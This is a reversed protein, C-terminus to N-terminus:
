GEEVAEAALRRADGPGATAKFAVGVAMDDLHRRFRRAKNGRAAPNFIVCTRVRSHNQKRAM